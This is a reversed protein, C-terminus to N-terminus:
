LPWSRVSIYRLVSQGMAEARGDESQVGSYAKHFLRQLDQAYDSVSKNPKQKWEHFRSTQIAQVQVPTFRKRHAEALDHYNCRQQLTCARYFWGRLRTTDNVLKAQDDWHCANVVLELHELWESFNKADHDLPLSLLQQALLAM